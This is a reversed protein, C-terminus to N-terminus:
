EDDEKKIWFGTVDGVFNVSHSDRTIVWLALKVDEILKYIEDALEYEITNHKVTSDGLIQTAEDKDIVFGHDKYDEVLHKGVYEASKPLKKSGLLRIAYDVASDAIRRTHGLHQLDLERSLFRAFMEASQPHKESVSALFDIADGLALAPLKRIQPDIPGLESISGMHIQDAGLAILTAASKARRPIAVSFLNSYEKCCKSIFYAPGIYGGPSNLILLVGKEKETGKIAAYISDLTNRAIDYADDQILFLIKHTKSLDSTQLVEKLKKIVLERSRSPDKKIDESIKRFESVFYSFHDKEKQSTKPISEAPKAPVKVKKSKKEAM